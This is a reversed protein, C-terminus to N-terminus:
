RLSDGGRRTLMSVSWHWLYISYSRSDIWRLARNEILRSTSTVPNSAGVILLTSAPATLLIGGRYLFQQFENLQNYIFVLALLGAWGFLELTGRRPAESEQSPSWLRALLAGM